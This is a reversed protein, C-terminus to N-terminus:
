EGHELKGLHILSELDEADGPRFRAILARVSAIKEATALGLMRSVDALDQLRGSELKMLVLYPLSVFPCGDADREASRIAEEVWPRDLAILDLSRGKQMRWTSGGITLAGTRECGAMTLAKEADALHEGSILIDTDLTMREPMHRATALGGVIVFAVGSLEPLLDKVGYRSRAERLMSADSGTGRKGRRKAMELLERRDQERM